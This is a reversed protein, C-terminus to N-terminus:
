LIKQWTICFFSKDPLTTDIALTTTDQTVTLTYHRRLSQGTFPPFTSMAVDHILYNGADTPCLRVKGYYTLFKPFVAASSALDSVSGSLNRAILQVSMNGAADYMLMGGANEGM